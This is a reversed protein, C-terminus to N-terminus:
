EFDIESSGGSIKHQYEYFLTSAVIRAYWGTGWSGRRQKFDYIYSLTVGAEVFAEVFTKVTAIGFRIGLFGGGSALGEISNEGNFWCYKVKATANITLGGALTLASLGKATATLVIGFSASACCGDSSIVGSISAKLSLVYISFKNYRRIIFEGKKKSYDNVIGFYEHIPQVIFDSMNKLGNIIELIRAQVANFFLGLYDTSSIPSNNTYVFLNRIYEEEILDRGLWRGDSPNYHRYNYYVLALEDDHFESSWQIPQTVDGSITVSGYPTYAYNTRIYGHQGYLECINKTLDWGYTYWTGDKQIALPRTAIPQSPDWTILWLAPHNSRTLDCCAIQLFGRYLYRHHLTVAGNVTVKKTARRGMYDYSCEIVTNNEANTFSVPRNEADYAVTWIGTSTKVLTQNGAADYTPTFDGIATYQNLNNASYNTVEEAAEQATNRNGINDYNYSYAGNNVTAATLESRNNYGFSDNVTAGNRSTSRTVPRGLTDYTYARSVVTTSSRKYLQGILLDRKEEYSLTLSMNNPKTLSQLLHTGPLYAYSFTKQAGGFVFGATAIRGDTGYGTSVTQQVSGNNAYTYGSSRGYDDRLETVLHTRGGALLSDSEQEGYANYGITRTGATDTVQTLQGLHNYSYTRPPTNDSYTTGLLLGRAHEYTHTKVKGRADTETLRRNYADYTGTVSSGDAYSKRIEMGSADHYSWTTTDGDTRNGPDTSVTETSARFTTLSTMRDASDYAFLAPQIGTGWEAVKRGREDYRYCTTNGQADTVTAPLDHLPAYTTTTTNGAADTVSLTRGATDTVTTTTNGRADTHTITMGTATYARTSTTTVGANDSQSIVFGDVSVTAATIDSTPLSTYRTRKTAANYVSWQASTLNRENIAISKSEISSSLSSVMQKQLSILPSGAANYRTRTLVSYIGDEQSEAGYVHYLERQGTGSVHAVSGDTNRSYNMTQLKNQNNRHCSSPAARASQGFSVYSYLRVSAFIRWKGTM